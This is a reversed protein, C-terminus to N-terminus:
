GLDKYVVGMGIPKEFAALTRSGGSEIGAKVVDLDLDGKGSAIASVTLEMYGMDYLAKVMAGDLPVGSKLSDLLSKAAVPVLHEDLPIEIKLEIACGVGAELELGSEAIGLGKLFEHSATATVEASVELSLVDPVGIIASGSEYKAEARAEIEISSGRGFLSASDSIEIQGYFSTEGSELAHEVGVEARFGSESKVVNLDFKVEEEVYIGGEVLREEPDQQADLYEMLRKATQAAGFTPVLWDAKTQFNEPTLADLLGSQFARASELDQFRYVLTAEGCIGIGAHGVKAVSIQAGVEGNISLEVLVDGNAMGKFESKVGAKAVVELKAVEGLPLIPAEIGISAELSLRWVELDGFHGHAYFYARWEKLGDVEGLAEPYLDMLSKQEDNTMACWWSRADAPSLGQPIEDPWECWQSGAFYGKVFGSSTVGALFDAGTVRSGVDDIFVLIAERNDRVRKLSDRWQQFQSSRGIRSAVDWGADSILHSTHGGLLKGNSVHGHNLDDVVRKIVPADFLLTEKDIFGSSDFTSGSGRDKM